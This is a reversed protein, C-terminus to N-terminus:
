HLTHSGRSNGLGHLFDLALDARGTYRMFLEIVRTLDSEIADLERHLRATEEAVAVLEEAIAERTVGDDDFM